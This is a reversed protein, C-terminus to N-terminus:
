AQKGGEFLTPLFDLKDLIEYEVLDGMLITDDNKIAESLELLIDRFTDVYEQLEPKENRLGELQGLIRFLRSLLESLVIILDLAQRDKGEQFLLSVESLQPKMAVLTESTRRGEEWPEIFEGRRRELLTLINQWEVILNDVDTDDIQGELVGSNIMLNNLQSDFLYEDLQLIHPLNAKIYPYERALDKLLDENRDTLAQIYMRFYHGLTDLDKLMQEKRTLALIKLSDISDVDRDEWDQRQHLFVEDENLWLETVFFDQEGLWENIHDFVQGVTEENELTFDIIEKNVIIKM